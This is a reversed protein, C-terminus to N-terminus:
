EDTCELHVWKTRGYPTNELPTISDGELITEGCLKCHSGSYKSKIVVRINATPLEVCVVAEEKTAPAHKRCACQDILLDSLDCREM